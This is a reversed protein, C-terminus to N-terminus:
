SNLWTNYEQLDKEILAKREPETTKSYDVNLYHPSEAAALIDRYDIKAHVIHKCFNDKNTQTLKLIALQVREKNTEHEMQGYLELSQMVYDYPHEPFIQKTKKIVLERTYEM